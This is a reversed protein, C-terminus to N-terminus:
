DNCHEQIIMEMFENTTSDTERIDESIRDQLDLPIQITLGEKSAYYAEIVMEIFKSVSSEAERIDESIRTHLDLPIKCTLGKTEM